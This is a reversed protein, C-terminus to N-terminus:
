FFPQELLESQTVQFSFGYKEIVDELVPQFWPPMFPSIVVKEVVQSLDCAVSIGEVSNRSKESIVARVESEHSLSSRKCFIRRDRHAYYKKFDLYHVKGVMFSADQTSANWLHGARSQIAIGPIPPPCYLRWLAESEVDNAHWCSVFFSTPRASGSKLQKLLVRAREAM